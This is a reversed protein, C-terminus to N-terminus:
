RRSPPPQDTAEYRRLSYKIYGLLERPLSYLDRWAFYRAHASRVTGVEFRRLALRSRPVHFYQTVVCVSRGGHARLWQATFRASAYTDVGQNDAVVSAAEVGRTVLFERMVAAEDHGRADIGGSVIVVPAVRARFAELTRDLRARLRASPTGDAEVTNGLVLIVDTTGPRDRLGDLAIWGSGLLVLGAMLVFGRRLVRAAASWRPPLKAPIAPM